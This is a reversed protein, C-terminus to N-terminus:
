VAIEEAARIIADAVGAHTVEELKEFGPNANIEIVCPGRSSRLIDIGIIDLGSAGVVKRALAREKATLTVPAATGGIHSNARVDGPRATREMAAVIKKCVCFVRLDKRDADRVFEEIVVPNRDRVGLYEVIPLLTESNEAYFVGTGHTGFTTKVVVPFGIEQAAAHAEASGKAVAWRPTPIRNSQFWVHEAIKNKSIAIDAESGNMIRYGARKLLTLHHAHLTPEETFNPRYVLVDFAGLRRGGHFVRGDDLYSLLPEHVLSMAHGRAAGAETLRDANTYTEQKPPTAILIGINM